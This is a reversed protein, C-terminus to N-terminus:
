YYDSRCTNSSYQVLFQNV